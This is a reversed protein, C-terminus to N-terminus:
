VPKRMRDDFSKAGAVTAIFQCLRRALGPPPPERALEAFQDYPYKDGSCDNRADKTFPEICDHDERDNQEVTQQTEQLFIPRFL